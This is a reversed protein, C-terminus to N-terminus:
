RWCRRRRTSRSTWTCCTAAHLAAGQAGAGAARALLVSQRQELLRRHGHHFQLSSNHAATVAAIIRPHCCLGAPGRRQDAGRRQRCSATGRGPQQDNVAAEFERSAEGRGRRSHPRGCEPRPTRAGPHVAQRGRARGAGAPMGSGEGSLKRASAPRSPARRRLCLPRRRGPCRRMADRSHHISRARPCQWRAPAPRRCQPRARLRRSGTSVVSGAMCAWWRRAAHANSPTTSECVTDPPRAAPCADRQDIGAARIAEGALVLRQIRHGAM